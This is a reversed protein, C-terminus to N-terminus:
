YGSSGTRQARKETQTPVVVTEVEEVKPTEAVVAEQESKEILDATEADLEIQAQASSDENTFVDEEEIQQAETADIQGIEETTLWTEVQITEQSDLSINETNLPDSCSALFLMVSLMYIYKM